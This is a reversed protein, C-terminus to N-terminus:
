KVSVVKIPELGTAIKKVFVGDTDYFYLDGDNIHDSSTVCVYDGISSIKYPFALDGDKIWATETNGDATDYAVYAITENWVEDYQSLIGYIVGSNCCMETMNGVVTVEDEANIYQLVSPIDFYNGLSIVYIGNDVALVSAPNIQVDIKKIEKFSSLDVVSITKDYGITAYDMGGSNAVYLKDGVIALQEPNRGVEITADVKLTATDLRAVHGDHYSVYVNGGSAVLYRPQAGCAIQKISKADADTVEITSEGAVAIYMKSGYVIIDNALNGLGRRNQQEFFCQRVEGTAEDYRTLSSNSSKWEGSNLVYYVSGHKSGNGGDMNGSGGDDPTCAVFFITLVIAFLSKVNFSM